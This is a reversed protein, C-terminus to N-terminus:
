KIRMSIDVWTAKTVLSGMSICDVGMVKLAPLREASIGGSVEVIVKIGSSKIIRMAEAVLADNMNDLMIMDPAFKLAESLELLNRVEVEVKIGPPKSQMLQALTKAVSGSNADIHNNKVLVMESLSGRHNEAGGIRVAYKELERWGPTTKRTDLVKLGDANAVIRRVNTAVGSLKQLFNLVPREILLLDQARGALNVLKEDAVVEAGDKTLYSVKMKVNFEELIADLYSLGCVVFSERAIITAQAQADFPVTLKSTIDGEPADEAIALRFLQRVSESVSSRM